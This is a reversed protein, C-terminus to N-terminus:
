GGSEDAGNEILDFHCTGGFPLWKWLADLTEVSQMGDGWDDQPGQPNISAQPYRQGERREQTVGLVETGAAPRIEWKGVREAGLGSLNAVVIRWPSGAGGYKAVPMWGVGCSGGGNCSKAVFSGPGDTVAWMWTEDEGAGDGVSEVISSGLSIRLAGVIMATGLGQVGWTYFGYPGYPGHNVELPSADYVPLNNGNSHLPSAWEFRYGSYTAMTRCLEIGSVMGIEPLNDPEYDGTGGGAEDGGFSTSPNYDDCAATCLVALAICTIPRNM